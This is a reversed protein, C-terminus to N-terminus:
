GANFDCLVLGPRSFANTEKAICRCTVASADKWINDSYLSRAEPRASAIKRAQAPSRACILFGYAVDYQISQDKRKLLYLRLPGTDKSLPSETNRKGHYGSRGIVCSTMNRTPASSPRM